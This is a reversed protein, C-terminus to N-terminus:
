TTFEENKFEVGNGLSTNEKENVIMASNDDYTGIKFLTYDAPNKAFQHNPDHIMDAFLRIAMEEKHITWPPLYAGAKSDYIAFIQHKM